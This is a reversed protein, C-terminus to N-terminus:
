WRPMGCPAKQQGGGAPVGYGTQLRRLADPVPDAAVIREGPFGRQTLGSILAVAMNGGGIFAVSRLRNLDSESM